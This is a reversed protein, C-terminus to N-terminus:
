DWLDNVITYPENKSRKKLREDKEDTTYRRLEKKCKKCQDSVFFNKELPDFFLENEIYTKKDCGM